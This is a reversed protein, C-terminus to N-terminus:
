GTSHNMLLLSLGRQFYDLTHSEIDALADPLTAKPEASLAALLYAAAMPWNEMALEFFAKDLHQKESGTPERGDRRISDLIHQACAILVGFPATRHSGTAILRLSSLPSRRFM